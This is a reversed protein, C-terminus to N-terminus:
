PWAPTNEFQANVGLSVFTLLTLYKNRYNNIKKHTDNNNQINAEYDVTYIQM